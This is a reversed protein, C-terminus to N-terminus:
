ENTIRTERIKNGRKKLGAPAPRRGPGNLLTEKKMYVVVITDSYAEEKYISYGLRQYLRINDIQKDGTFLSYYKVQPFEAEIAHILRSGYGKGQFDPHVMIRGIHCVKNKEYARVSGIIRNSHDALKLVTQNTIDKKMSELTQTLPDVSEVCYLDTVYSYSQVQLDLIKQADNIEALTIDM